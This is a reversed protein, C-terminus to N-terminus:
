AVVEATFWGEGDSKIEDITINRAHKIFWDGMGGLGVFPLNDRLKTSATYSITAFNHTTTVDTNEDITSMNLNNVCTTVTFDNHHFTVRFYRVTMTM